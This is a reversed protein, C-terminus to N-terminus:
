GPGLIDGQTTPFRSVNLTELHEQYADRGGEQMWASYSWEYMQYQGPHLSQGQADEFTESYEALNPDERGKFRVHFFGTHAERFHITQVEQVILQRNLFWEMQRMLHDSDFDENRIYFQIFWQNQQADSLIQEAYPLSM